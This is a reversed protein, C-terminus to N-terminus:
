LESAPNDKDNASSSANGPGGGATNRARKADPPEVPEEANMPNDAAPEHVIPAPTLHVSCLANPGCNPCAAPRAPSGSKSVGGALDLPVNNISTHLDAEDDDLGQGLDAMADDDGQVPVFASIKDLGLNSRLKRIVSLQDLLAEDLVSGDDSDIEFIKDFDPEFSIPSITLDCGLTFPTVTYNRGGHEFSTLSGPQITFIISSGCTPAWARHVNEAKILQCLPELASANSFDEGGNISFWTRVSSILIDGRESRDVHISHPQKNVRNPRKRKVDNIVGGPSYCSLFFDQVLEVNASRLSAALDVSNPLRIAATLNGIPFLESNKLNFLTQLTFLFADPDKEGKAARIFYPISTPSSTLVENRPYAFHGKTNDCFNLFAKMAKETSFDITFRLHRNLRFSLEPSPWFKCTKALKDLIKSSRLRQRSVAFDVIFRTGPDTDYGSLDVHATVALEETSSPMCTSAGVDAGTPNHDYAMIHVTSTSKSFNFSFDSNFQGLNIAPKFLVIESATAPNVKSSNLASFNVENTRQSAITIIWPYYRGSDFLTKAISEAERMRFASNFDPILIVKTRVSGADVLDAVMDAYSGASPGFYKKAKSLLMENDEYIDFLTNGLNVVSLEAGLRKHAISQDSLHLFKLNTEPLQPSGILLRADFHSMLASLVDASLARESAYTPAGHDDTTVFRSITPYTKRRFGATKSGFSIRAFKVVKLVHPMTYFPMTVSFPHKVDLGPELMTLVFDKSKTQRESPAIQFFLLPAHKEDEKFYRLLKYINTYEPKVDVDTISSDDIVFPTGGELDALSCINLDQFTNKALIYKTKGNFFVLHDFSHDPENPIDHALHIYYAVNPVSNMSDSSFSFFSEVLFALTSLLLVIKLGCFRGM